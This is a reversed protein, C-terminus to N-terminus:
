LKNLLVYLLIMVRFPVLEVIQPLCRYKAPGPFNLLARLPYIQFLSAYLVYLRACTLRHMLCLNCIRHFRYGLVLDLM